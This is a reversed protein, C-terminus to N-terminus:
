WYKIVFHVIAIVAGLPVAASVAACAVLLAMSWNPHKAEFDSPNSM